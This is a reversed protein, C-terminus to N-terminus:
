HAASDATRSSAGVAPNPWDIVAGYDNIVKPVISLAANSAPCVSLPLQLTAFPMAMAGRGFEEGEGSVEITSFNVIYPSTNQISLACGAAGNRELDWLLQQPGRLGDQIATPRYFFKIRTRTAISLTNDEGSAKQPVELVNLWFYSERDPPLGEGVKTISLGREAQGDMRSLPPTVFFPTDMGGDPGEMWTQMVYPYDTRNTAYISAHKDQEKMVVRTNSLQVAAQAGQAALLMAAGAVAVVYVFKRM